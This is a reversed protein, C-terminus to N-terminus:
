PKKEKESEKGAGLAACAMGCLASKSPAVGASRRSYRSEIGWSQMPADLHLILCYKM